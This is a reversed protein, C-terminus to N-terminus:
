VTKALYLFYVKRVGFEDLYNYLATSSRGTTRIDDVILLSKDKVDPHVRVYDRFSYNRVNTVHSAERDIKNSLLYYGNNLGTKSSLKHLFNEFRKKTKDSTSAPVHTLYFDEMSIHFNSNRIVDEFIGVFYDTNLGDKFKYVLNRSAVEENTLQYDSYRSKPFYEWVHYYLYSANDKSYNKWGNKELIKEDVRNILLLISECFHRTYLNLYNKELYEMNFRWDEFYKDVLFEYDQFLKESLIECSLNLDMKSLLEKESYLFVEANNMIWKYNNMSMEIVSDNSVLFDRWYKSWNYESLRRNEYIYKLINLDVNIRINGNKFCNFVEQIGTSNHFRRICFYRLFSNILILFYEQDYRVNPMLIKREVESIIEIFQKSTLEAKNVFYDINSTFFNSFIKLLELDNNPIRLDEDWYHIVQYFSSFKYDFVENLNKKDTLIKIFEKQIKKRFIKDVLRRLNKWVVNIDYEYYQILGKLINEERILFPIKLNLTRWINEDIKLLTIGDLQLFYKELVDFKEQSHYVLKNKLDSHGAIGFVLDILELSVNTYKNFLPMLRSLGDVLTEIPISDFSIEFKGNIDEQFIVLQNPSKPFDIIKNVKYCGNIYPIYTELGNMTNLQWYLAQYRLMGHNISDRIIYHYTGNILKKNTRFKISTTKDCLILRGGEYVYLHCNLHDPIDIKPSKEHTNKIDIRYRIKQVLPLGKKHINKKNLSSIEDLTELVGLSSENIEDLSTNLISLNKVLLEFKVPSLFRIDRLVVEKDM